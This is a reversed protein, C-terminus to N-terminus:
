GVVSKRDEHPSNINIFKRVTGTTIDVREKPHVERCISYIGHCWFKHAMPDRYNVCQIFVATDPDGSDSNSPRWIDGM